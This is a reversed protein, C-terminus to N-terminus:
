TWLTPVIYFRFVHLGIDLTLVIYFRFVHLGIDLTLVIYFRFVHLKSKMQKQLCCSNIAAM